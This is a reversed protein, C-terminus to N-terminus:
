REGAQDRHRESQTMLTTELRLSRVETEGGIGSMDSRRVARCGIQEGLVLRARPDLRVDVPSIRRRSLNPGYSM